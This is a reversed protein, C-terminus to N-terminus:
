VGLVKLMTRLAEVNMASTDMKEQGRGVLARNLQETLRYHETWTEPREPDIIGAGDCVCPADGDCPADVFGLSSYGTERNQFRKLGMHHFPFGIHGDEHEWAAMDAMDKLRWDYAQLDFQKQVGQGEWAYVVQVTIQPNGYQDFHDNDMDLVCFDVNNDILWQPKVFHSDRGEKPAHAKRMSGYGAM